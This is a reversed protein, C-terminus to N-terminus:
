AHVACWVGHNARDYIFSVSRGVLFSVRGDRIGGSQEFVTHRRRVRRPPVTRHTTVPMRAQSADGVSTRPARGDCGHGWLVAGAVYEGRWVACSGGGHFVPWVDWWHHCAAPSLCGLTVSGIVSGAPLGVQGVAFGWVVADGHPAGVRVGECVAAVVRQTEPTM